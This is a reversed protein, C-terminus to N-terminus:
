WSRTRSDAVIKDWCEDCHYGADLNADWRRKGPKGCSCKSHYEVIPLTNRVFERFAADSMEKNDVNIAMTGVFSDAPVTEIRKPSKMRPAKVVRNPQPLTSRM